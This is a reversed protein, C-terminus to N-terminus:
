HYFLFATLTFTAEKHLDCGLGFHFLEVVIDKIDSSKDYSERERESVCVCGKEVRLEVAEEEEESSKRRREKEKLYNRM